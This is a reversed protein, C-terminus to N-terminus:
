PTNGRFVGIAEVLAAAFRSRNADSDRIGPFNIELQVASVSGGDRSGHREVLYGASFYPDGGPSPASPSPVSPYGRAELLGGLSKPGRVLAALGGVYGNVIARVSTSTGLLNLAADSGALQAGSVLYGWELRAIPHSHGHVDLMLGSSSTATVTSRAIELFHQYERWARVAAPQGEAAEVVERNPDLKRRHLRSIVLHPRRGTTAFLQAAITRALEETATDRVQTGGSRDPIEAPTLSGGHPASLIIPGDGVLYEVYGNRGLITTGPVPVTATARIELVYESTTAHLVQPDSAAGLVWEVAAIGAVNTVVLSDVVWGGGSVVSFRVPVGAQPVGGPGHVKLQPAIPLATGSPASQGAGAIFWTSPPGGKGPIEPDVPGPTGCGLMALLLLRAAPKM